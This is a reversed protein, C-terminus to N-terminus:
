TYTGAWVKIRSGGNVTLQDYKYSFGLYAANLNGYSRATYGKASTDMTFLNYKETWVGHTGFLATDTADFDWNTGATRTLGMQPNGVGQIEWTFWDGSVVTYAAADLWIWNSMASCKEDTNWEVKSGARNDVYTDCTYTDLGDQVWLDYQMPFM